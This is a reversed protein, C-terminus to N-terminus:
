PRRYDPDNPNNSMSRYDPDNVRTVRRARSYSPDNPYSTRYESRRMRRGGEDDIWDNDNDEAATGAGAGTVAGAAGGLAGGVIAGPPGGVVAGIATGAIGGAVSGGATGEEMKDDKNPDRAASVGAGAAAGGAAGIAGGVIAGPPGGIVGGAVAGTAAGAVAGSPVEAGQLPDGGSRDHSQGGTPGGMTSGMNVSGPGTDAGNRELISMAEMVREDAKITVLVGGQRFGSEFHRAEDEPIGLGVLAGVLGGAAAGIGAGALATGGALGFTSALLGGAVVPGIGPIALAGVGVLFGVVGGLLGGGLAGTVAGGAAHSGTEEVLQNQETRDRMAIGVQDARFGSAKLDNIAAEAAARNHFLGAITHRGTLDRTRNVPTPNM